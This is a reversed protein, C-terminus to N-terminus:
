HEGHRSRYGGGPKSRSNRRPARSSPDRYETTVTPRGLIKLGQMAELVMDLKGAPIGVVTRDDYIEIKGIEGGSLGTREAIAGVIHNPACRASRGISITIRRYGGEGGSPGRRLPKIEVIEREAKGFALELAAAAIAPLSNGKALLSNVMSVYAEEVGDQITKELLDMNGAMSKERIAALTPIDLPSIASRTLRAIDRLTFVQRRGSCITIATGTKGARGTRGIRHVYYEASQPIDFNIM